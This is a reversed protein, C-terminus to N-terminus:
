IQKIEYNTYGLATMADRVRSIDSLAANTVTVQFNIFNVTDITTEDIWQDALIIKEGSESLFRYYICSEPTDPTGAPLVPYIQRFKLDINDYMKATEYDLIAMLKANKVTAQLIGPAKTNFTYTYGINYAFSM